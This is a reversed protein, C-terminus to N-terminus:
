VADLLRARATVEDIGEIAVRKQRGREGSVISVVRKPV